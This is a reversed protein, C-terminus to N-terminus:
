RMQVEGLIETNLTVKPEM